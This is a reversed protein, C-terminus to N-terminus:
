HLPHPTQTTSHGLFAMDSVGSFSAWPAHLQPCPIFCKREAVADGLIPSGVVDLAKNRQRAGSGPARGPQACRIDAPSAQEWGEHERTLLAIM